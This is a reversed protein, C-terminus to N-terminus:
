FTLQLGTSPLSTVGTMPSLLGVMDGVMCGPMVLTMGIPVWVMTEPEPKGGPSVLGPKKPPLRSNHIENKGREKKKTKHTHQRKYM